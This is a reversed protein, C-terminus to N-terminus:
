IWCGEDSHFLDGYYAISYGRCGGGCVGFHRCGRCKGKINDKLRCLKRFENSKNWRLWVERLSEKKLDGIPYELFTCPFVTGNSKIHVLNSLTEVCNNCIESKKVKPHIFGFFGDLEVVMRGRYKREMDTLKSIGIKYESPTMELDKHEGGRGCAIFRTVKFCDAGLEFAKDAIKDLVMYNTKNVTTSVSVNGFVKKILRINKTAKEYTGPVRRFKDHAEGIGDISVQIGKVSTKRVKELLGETWLTGNSNIVADINKEKLMHLIELFRDHMLPEGGGIIVFFVKLEALEDVLEKAREFTMDDKKGANAYCHVCKLNCRSTIDWNLYLPASLM